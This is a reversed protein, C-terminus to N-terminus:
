SRAQGSLVYSEGEIIASYVLVPASGVIRLSDAMTANVLRVDRGWIRCSRRPPFLLTTGSVSEGGEEAIDELVIRVETGYVLACPGNGYGRVTLAAIQIGHGHGLFM